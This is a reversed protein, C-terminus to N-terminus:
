KSAWKKGTRTSRDYAVMSQKQLTAAKFAIAHVGEFTGRSKGAALCNGGDTVVWRRTRVKTRETRPNVQIM